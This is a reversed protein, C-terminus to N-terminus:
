FTLFPRRSSPIWLAALYAITFSLDDGLSLILIIVNSRRVRDNPYLVANLRTSLSSWPCSSVATVTAVTTVNVVTAVRWGNKM